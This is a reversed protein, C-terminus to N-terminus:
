AARDWSVVQSGGTGLPRAGQTHPNARNWRCLVAGTPCVGLRDVSTTRTALGPAHACSPWFDPPSREDMSIVEMIAPSWARHGSAPAGLPSLCTADCPRIGRWGSTVTRGRCRQLLRRLRAALAQVGRALDSAVGRVILDWAHNRIFTRWRQALVCHGPARGLHTPMYKRVTRPSVRLGLKLRLENAVRRQGWTLNDRAMQRILAQLEVPIPPRGPSPTGRWFREFGQRRWRIFTEPQVVTLAQPWDFWQSLWVLAVRIADTARRPKVHGEQYLALQKRLFLNEAALATPSHLCLRLWQTADLILTCLMGAGQWLHRIMRSLRAM